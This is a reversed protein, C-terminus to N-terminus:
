GSGVLGRAKELTLARLVPGAAPLVVQDRRKVCLIDDPEEALNYEPLHDAVIM